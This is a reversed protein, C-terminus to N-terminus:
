RSGRGKMAFIAEAVLFDLDTDIDAATFQDTVVVGTRQGSSPLCLRATDPHSLLYPIRVAYIAGTSRYLPEVDQRRDSVSEAKNEFAFDPEGNTLRISWQPPHTAETVTFVVDLGYEILKVLVRDIDEPDLLPSNAQLMVAVDYNEGKGSLRMLADIVVPVMPTTSQALEPSRLFPVDGGSQRSIQAIAEDDTSVIVRDILRNLRAKEIAHAIMPKGAFTM